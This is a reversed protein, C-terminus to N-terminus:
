TVTVLHGIYQAFNDDSFSKGKLQAEAKLDPGALYYAEGRQDLCGTMAETVPSRTPSSKRNTTTDAAGGIATGALFLALVAQATRMTEEGSTLRLGRRPMVNTALIMSFARLLNACGAM